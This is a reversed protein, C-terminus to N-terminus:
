RQKLATMKMYYSGVKMLEQELDKSDQLASDYIIAVGKSDWVQVCGDSHFAYFDDHNEVEMSRLFDSHDVSSSIGFPSIPVFSSVLYFFFVQLFLM